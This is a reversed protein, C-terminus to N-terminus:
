PAHLLNWSLQLLNWFLPSVQAAFQGEVNNQHRLNVAYFPVQAM